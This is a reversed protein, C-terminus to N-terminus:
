KRTLKYFYTAHHTDCFSRGPQTPEACYTMLELESDRGVVARCQRNKLNIITVGGAPSYEVPGTVVADTTIADCSMARVKIVPDPRPKHVVTVRRSDRKRFNPHVVGLRQARGICSCRSRNLKQCVLSYPSGQHILRVLTDDEAQTWASGTM